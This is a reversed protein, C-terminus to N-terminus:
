AQIKADKILKEYRTVEARWFDGFQKPPMSAVMADLEDFRKTVEPLKLIAQVENYLRDVIPQPLGKPGALGYWTAMEFGPVTEAVAPVNPMDPVRKPTCVALLTLKGGKVQPMASGTSSFTLDVDGSLLAALADGTGKFPVHLMDVGTRLKFDEGAIHQASGVGSSAFTLKGPNRKAHDILGQVTGFKHKPHHAIVQPTIGLLAIPTFDDTPHFKGKALMLPGLVNSNIHAAQLTYGDPASKAVLDSCITGTAGTKNDVIVPQGLRDGLKAGVLRAMADAGGGPPFGVYLKIPKSPWKDQARALAPALAAASLASVAAVVQRRRTDIKM